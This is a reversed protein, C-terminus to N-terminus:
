AYRRHKRQDATTKEGNRCFRLLLRLGFIRFILFLYTEPEVLSDGSAQCPVLRQFDFEM